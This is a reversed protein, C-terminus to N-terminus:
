QEKRSDRLKEVVRFKASRSPANVRVEEEGPTVPKRTLLKGLARGGCNCIPQEPPCSCNRSWDRFLNKVIRDELSHFSIVGLRGGPQLASFALVIAREARELEHNVCIRLGQFSRTAPHIRGHRYAAPVAKWIIDALQKSSIIPQQKREEIIRAAIRRSYREEGYLFFVDALKKEGLSNVLDAASEGESSDLRMDLPEDASFSFGRGSETYHFVSIGLDFLIRDPRQEVPDQEFFFDYWGLYFQMRDGFPSLRARAKEQIVPDRDIGVVRLQPFKSLFRESHGGEGLTCDFLLSEGDEAPSLYALVEEVMVPTHAINM